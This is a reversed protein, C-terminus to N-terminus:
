HSKTYIVKRKRTIVSLDSLIKLKGNIDLIGEKADIAGNVVLAESNLLREGQDTESKIAPIESNLFARETETVIALDHDQDDYEEEDDEEEDDDDEEVKKQESENSLRELPTSYSEDDTGHDGAHTDEDYTPGEKYEEESSGDEDTLDELKGRDQPIKKPPKKKPRPPINEENNIQEKPMEVENEEEEDDDEMEEEEDDDEDDDEEDDDEEDDDDEEEEEDDEDEEEEEDDDEEEEEESEHSRKEQDSDDELYSKFRKSGIEESTDRQRKLLPVILKNKDNSNYLL